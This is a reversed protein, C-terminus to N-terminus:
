EEKSPTEEKAEDKKEEGRRGFGRLRDLLGKKKEGAEPAPAAAAKAKKPGKAVKGEVLEIIAMQTGDGPRTGLKIIRTYGGPRDAYRAALEDFLKDVAAVGAARKPRPRKYGGDPRRKEGTRNGAHFYGAAQRRLHLAAAPRESKLARRGLTIAREAFPRLEKAKPLTTELREELILSTCLNRLLSM